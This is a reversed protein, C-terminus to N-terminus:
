APPRRFVFSCGQAAQGTTWTLGLRERLGVIEDKLIDELHARYNPPIRSGETPNVSQRVDAPIYRAECRVGLFSMVDRLLEEPRRAIDDFLGVFLHADQLRVSWREIHEVYRACHRQYDDGFFELFEAEKVDEFRRKRNRVLDKKAHSWARQVPDRIMLLIKIHPNLAVIEDIVDGDLVAYSATAEGRVRPWYPERYRWLCIAMKALFVWSPDRFFRLYWALDSSQYKPHNPTKLRSFFFLEKPESLLIQPHYRLQAHLWTTGTRQPGVILFDPFRGLDLDPDGVHVYNLQRRVSESIV